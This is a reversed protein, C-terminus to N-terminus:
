CFQLALLIEDVVSQTSKQTEVQINGLQAYLEFRGMIVKRNDQESGTYFPKAMQREVITDVCVDLDWSPMLCVTNPDASIRRQVSDIAWHIDHRYTMFGSSTAIVADGVKEVLGLYLDINRKVYTEYGLENIDRTIDFAEMYHADLDVVPFGLREALVPATTSKGAGGPGILHVLM